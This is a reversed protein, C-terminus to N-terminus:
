PKVEFMPGYGPIVHDCYSLLEEMTNIDFTQGREERKDSRRIRSLATSVDPDDESPICMGAVGITQGAYKRTEEGLLEIRSPIHVLLVQAGPEPFPIVELKLYRDIWHYRDSIAVKRRPGPEVKSWEKNRLHQLAHVFIDDNGNHLPHIRTTALVNVKEVEVNNKEISGLLEERVGISGTDIVVTTTPTKVLTVSSTDEDGGGRRGEILPIVEMKRLGFDQPKLEVQGTATIGEQNQKNM